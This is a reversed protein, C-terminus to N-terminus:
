KEGNTHTLVEVTGASGDVRVRDGNKLVSTGTRTNVVCPVGLERAVVAAHSIPGGIDVVLAASIFMISAWSPDTTPAVLVEGPQVDDFTPDTVVRVVGEVTGNSVGVGRVLDVTTEARQTAQPEPTGRWAAPLGVAEYDARVRRREALLGRVDDVPGYLLEKLTLYFVDGPETLRGGNAMLHGIRRAAARAVDLAQLYSAKGVGRIPITQAAHRLLAVVVPRLPRPMAAAMEAQMRPLRERMEAQRREPGDEDGRKAYADVM